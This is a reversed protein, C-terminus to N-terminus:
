YYCFLRISELCMEGREVKREESKKRREDLDSEKRKWVVYLHTLELVPEFGVLGSPGIELVIIDRLQGFAALGPAEATAATPAQDHEHFDFVMDRVRRTALARAELAVVASEGRDDGSLYHQVTRQLERQKALVIDRQAQISAMDVEGVITHLAKDAAMSLELANASKDVEVEASELRLYAEDVNNPRDHLAAISAIAAGAADNADRTSEMAHAMIKAATISSQRRVRHDRTARANVKVAIGESIPGLSNVRLQFAHVLVDQGVSRLQAVFPGDLDSQEAVVDNHAQRLTWLQKERACARRLGRRMTEARVHAEAHKQSSCATEVLATVLSSRSDIGVKECVLADFLQEDMSNRVATVKEMCLEHFFNTPRARELHMRRLQTQDQEEMAHVMGATAESCEAFAAKLLALADDHDTMAEGVNNEIKQAMQLLAQQKKLSAPAMDHDIFAQKVTLVARRTDLVGKAVDAVANKVAVYDVHVNAKALSRQANTEACMTLELENELKAMDTKTVELSRIATNETEGAMMSAVVLQELESAALNTLIGPKMTAIVAEGRSIQLDYLRKKERGYARSRMQEGLTQRARVLEVNLQAANEQADAHTTQKRTVKSSVMTTLEDNMDGVQNTIKEEEEIEALEVALSKALEAKWVHMDQLAAEMLAAADEREQASSADKAKRAAAAADNLSTVVLDSVALAQEQEEDEEEQVQERAAAAAANPIEVQGETDEGGWDSIVMSTDSEDETYSQTSFEDEAEDTDEDEEENDLGGEEAALEEMLLREEEDLAAAERDLDAKKQESDELQATNLKKKFHSEARMRLKSKQANKVRNKAEEARKLSSADPAGKAGGNGQHNEAKHALVEDPDVDIGAAYCEELLKLLVQEIIALEGDLTPALKLTTLCNQFEEALANKDRTLDQCQKRTTNLIKEAHDTVRQSSRKDELSPEDAM